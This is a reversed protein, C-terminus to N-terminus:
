SVWFGQTFTERFSTRFPRKVLRLGRWSHRKHACQVVHEKKNAQKEDEKADIEDSPQDGLRLKRQEGEASPNERATAFPPSFGGHLGAWRAPTASLHVAARKKLADTVESWRRPPLTIGWLTDGALRTIERRHVDENFVRLGV